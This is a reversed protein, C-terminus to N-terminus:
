IVRRSAASSKRCYQGGFASVSHSIPGLRARWCRGVRIRSRSLASLNPFDTTLHPLTSPSLCVPMQRHPKSAPLSEPCRAWALCVTRCPYRGVVTVAPDAAERLLTSWINLSPIVTGSWRPRMAAWELAEQRRRPCFRKVPMANVAVGGDGKIHPTMKRISFMTNLFPGVRDVMFVFVRRM